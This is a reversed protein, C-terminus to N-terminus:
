WSQSGTPQRAAARVTPNTDATYAVGTGAFAVTRLGWNTDMYQREFNLTTDRFANKGLVFVADDDHMHKGGLIRLLTTKGAGNGGVLLTRSGPELDFSVDDLVNPGAPYNFDLNKVRIAPDTSAFASNVEGKGM